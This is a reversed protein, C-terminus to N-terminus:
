LARNLTIAFYQTTVTGSSYGTNTGTRTEGIAPSDSWLGGWNTTKNGTISATYNMDVFWHSDIFYTAGVTGSIGFLWQSFSYTSGQGIGTVSTTLGDLNAFGTIRNISTKTQVFTPGVGGYVYSRDFSQGIFPILSIQNELTQRYSQVVYNGTFPTYVGAQTFGGAQPILLDGYSSSAGSYSYTLKIGALWPSDSFHQFYGLQIAPALGAGPDLNFGTGGAASGTISPTFRGIADYHAPTYSTGKGYTYQSNFNVSDASGGVGLFFASQPVISVVPPSASQLPLDAAVAATAFVACAPLLLTKM